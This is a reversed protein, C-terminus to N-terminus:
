GGATLGQPLHGLSDAELGEAVQSLTLTASPLASHQPDPSERSLWEDVDDASLERLKRAGLAPIVHTNALITCKTITNADRGSLDFALWDRVADAVTCGYGSTVLGDEYDRLM